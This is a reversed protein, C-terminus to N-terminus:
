GRSLPSGSQIGAEAPIVSFRGILVTIAKHDSVGESLKVDSAHYEPTTFLGDVVYQKAGKLTHLKPDLSSTYEPPINDKYKAALMRFIEGGRPANFDGCLITDPSDALLTLLRAMDRRQKDDASGDPTRTFHTVGFNFRVGDRVVTARLLMRRVTREDGHRFMPIKEADGYYCDERVDAVPFRSFLGVGHVSLPSAPDKFIVPSKAMASFYGKMDLATEFFHISTEMLEAFCVVDPRFDKLFAAVAERHADGEINIFSFRLTETKDENTAIRLNANM